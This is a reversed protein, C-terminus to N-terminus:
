INFETRIVHRLREIGKEFLAEPLCNYLQIYNEANNGYIYGPHFEVGKKVAHLKRIDIRQDLYLWIRSFPRTKHWKAIGNMNKELITDLKGRQIRMLKKQSDLFKQFEGNALMETIFLQNMESPFIPGQLSVETLGKIIDRPAVIWDLSLGPTLPGHVGGIYIVTGTKDLSKIPNPCVGDLFLSDLVCDEIIPIKSKSCYDYIEQRRVDDTMVGTPESYSPQIILVTRKSTQKLKDISLGREDTSLFLRGACRSYGISYLNLISAMEHCVQMGPSFLVEAIMNYSQMRRSVILIEEPDANIGFKKLYDRLLERLAPLGQKHYINKYRGSILGDVANSFSKKAFKLGEFGDWQEELRSGLNIVDGQHCVVREAEFKSVAPYVFYSQKLFKNWDPGDMLTKHYDSVVARSRNKIEILGKESLINFAAAVTSRSLGFSEYLIRQSPMPAGAAMEGNVIRNHFFDALQRYLPIGSGIDPSWKLVM